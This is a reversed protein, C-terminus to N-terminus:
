FVHDFFSKIDEWYRGPDDWGHGIGAVFVALLALSVLLVLIGVVARAIRIQWSKGHIFGTVVGMLGRVLLTLVLFSTGIRVLSGSDFLMAFGTMVLEFVLLLPFVHRFIAGYGSGPVGLAVIGALWSGIRAVWGTVKKAAGPQDSIGDLMKGTVDVGRALIPLSAGPPLDDAVSYNVRFREVVEANSLGDPKPGFIAVRQELPLSELIIARQAQKLLADRDANCAPVFANILCEAADLRGYMIDNRRWDESLFAGFHSYKWGRTKRVTFRTAREDIISTADEPAIRIIEVVDTEGADTGYLMPFAVMDFEDFGELYRRLVQRAPGGGTLAEDLRDKARQTGYHSELVTPELGEDPIPIGDHLLRALQGAVADFQARREDVVETAKEERGREWGPEIISRLLARTIRLDRLQGALPSRAPSRMERGLFRLQIFIASLQKKIERLEGRFVRKTDADWELIAEAPRGTILSIVRAASPNLANLANVRRRLFALRRLRHQLDFELLFRNFSLREVGTKLNSRPEYAYRRNRWERMLYGIALLEDSGEDFGAVSAILRSLDDTVASVKLRHYGGYARGHASMGEALGQDAWEQGSVVEPTAEPAEGDPPGFADAAVGQLVRDVRDIIRNRDLVAQIDARVTEQRPLSHGQLMFNEFLDPRSQKTTESEPHGPDPEIFILKRDVPVDAGRRLLSGTAWTFPKNDLAGGDAFPRRLFPLQREPDLAAAEDNQPPFYSDYFQRWPYDELKITRYGDTVSLPEALDGFLMPKFAFPFASTCRAAFALMPNNAKKFDTRDGGSAEQTGYVFHFVNRYRREFAVGGEIKLPLVVGRLDTTTVWLDLERVFASAREGAGPNSREVADFADLLVSYMRGSNLLSEPPVELTLGPVRSKRDNLLVSIDGESMWLKELREISQNNALAKALFVANIGGASTGSLIDIVFRTTIPATPEARDIPATPTDILSELARGLKRYVRETGSLKSDPVLAETSEEPVLQTPATARVLHYLEQSVGNMYIALSVGGYMVLALRIERHTDVPPGSPTDTGVVGVARTM